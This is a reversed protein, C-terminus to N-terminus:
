FVWQLLCVLALAVVSLITEVISWSRLTDAVSMGSYEKILWFGGDNVHSFGTAGAGTAIALFEPRIGPVAMAMPAVISAATAMAVTTSGTAVRIFTAVLWALLLLPVHARLAYALMVNSVGSDMLVRGFGGGAGVLLTVSATPGLCENTFRLLQDRSFGRRLGLQYLSLLAAVLLAIDPNGFFHLLLNVRSGVATFRDAWSGVLMLLVPLLIM